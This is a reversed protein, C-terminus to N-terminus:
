NSTNQYLFRLVYREQKSSSGRHIGMEDFLLCDGPGDIQIDFENTLPNQHIKKLNLFVQDLNNYNKYEKHNKIINKEQDKNVFNFYQDLTYIIKKKLLNKSMLDAIIKSLNNSNELYALCGNNSSVPTLYIFFKYIGKDRGNFNHLQDTHWNKIPETCAPNYMLDMSVLKYKMSLMQSIIDDMNIKKKLNLLYIGIYFLKFEFKVLKILFQTFKVPIKIKLEKSPKKPFFSIIKSVKKKDLFKKILCFGKLQLDNYNIFNYFM